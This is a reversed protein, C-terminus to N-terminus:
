LMGYEERWGWGTSYDADYINYRLTLLWGMESATVNREMKREEWRNGENVSSMNEGHKGWEGEEEEEEDRQEVARSNAPPLNDMEERLCRQLFEGGRHATHNLWCGPFPEQAHHLIVSIMTFSSSQSDHELLDSTLLSCVAAKCLKYLCSREQVWTLLSILLNM